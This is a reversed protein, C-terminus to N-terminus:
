QLIFVITNKDDISIFESFNRIANQFDGDRASDVANQYFFKWKAIDSM